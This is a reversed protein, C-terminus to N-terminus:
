LVSLHLSIIEEMATKLLWVLLRPFRMAPRHYTVIVEDGKIHRTKSRLVKSLTYCLTLNCGTVIMSQWCCCSQLSVSRSLWFPFLCISGNKEREKERKEQYNSYNSLLRSVSVSTPQRKTRINASLNFVRRQLCCRRVKSIQSHARVLACAVQQSAAISNALAAPLREVLSHHVPQWLGVMLGGQKQGM